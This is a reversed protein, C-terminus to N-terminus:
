QVRRYRVSLRDRTRGQKMAIEEGATEIADGRGIALDEASRADALEDQPPDQGEPWVASFEATILGIQGRDAKLEAVASSGYDTFVFLDSRGRAGGQRPWGKVLISEGAPALIERVRTNEYFSFLNLGDLTIEVAADHDSHNIVEIAFVDELNAEALYAQGNEVHVPAPRYQSGIRRHIAIAYPSAPSSRVEGQSVAASPEVLYRQIEVSEAEPSTAAGFDPATVGM